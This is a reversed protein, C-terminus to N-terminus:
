HANAIHGNDATIVAAVGQALAYLLKNLANVGCVVSDQQVVLRVMQLFGLLVANVQLQATVGMTALNPWQAQDDLPHILASIALPLAALGIVVHTGAHADPATFEADAGVRFISDDGDVVWLFVM